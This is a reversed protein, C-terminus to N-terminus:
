LVGGSPPHDACGPCGSRGVGGLGPGPLPAARGGYRFTIDERIVNCQLVHRDYSGELYRIGRVRSAVHRGAASLIGTEGPHCGLQVGLGAAFAMEMLALSRAVGGCKSLRVNFIDALGLEIARRGDSEGCLSEDLMVPIGLRPRLAALAEVRDHPVPQELVSPRAALLPRVREVLDDPSWAENADIRVDCKGGLIRRFRQLRQPDDQGEVGVKVKVQHFGYLRMKWASIRERRPDAATVAGSYRVAVPAPHATEARHPLHDIAEHFPRGFARAHADLWAIELACRASNARMGRPDPGPPELEFSAIRAVAEAFDRPPDGLLREWPASELVGFTGEITENTVYPRPVGEGHGTTGDDLTVSVILNDSAEREQSAHRIRTKLPVRAHRWRVKRLRM